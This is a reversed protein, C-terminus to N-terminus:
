RVGQCLCASISQQQGFLVLCVGRGKNREFFREFFTLLRTPQRIEVLCSPLLEMWDHHSASQYLDLDDYVKHQDM